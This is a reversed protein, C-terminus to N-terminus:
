KKNCVLCLKAEPYIKLREEPILKGCNECLGYTGKEIKQLAVEINQLKLELSFEVPLRNGYEEVEDASQELAAGGSGKSETFPFRTDWDGKINKDEDAFKKLEAITSDKGKELQEKIKSILNNDM